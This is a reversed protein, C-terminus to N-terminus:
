NHKLPLTVKFDDDVVGYTIPRSLATFRQQLNHLGIKENSVANKYPRVKNEVILANAESKITILLPHSVSAENHKVANEILLQLSLPPILTEFKDPSVKVNLQIADQFRVKLLGWYDDLFELEEKLAVLDHKSSQLVARYLSAFSRTYKLAAKQDEEILDLLTNFSNFLFHPNVQQKLTELQFRLNESQLELNLLKLRASERQANFVSLIVNFILVLIFLRIALIPTSIAAITASKFYFHHSSSIAGIILLNVLVTIWLQRSRGSKNALQNNLYSNVFWFLLTIAASTFYSWAMKPYVTSTLEINNNFFQILPILASLLFPLYKEARSM